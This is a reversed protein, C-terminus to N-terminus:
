SMVPKVARLRGRIAPWTAALVVLGITSVVAVGAVLPQSGAGPDVAFYFLNVGAHAVMCAGLGGTTRLYGMGLGFALPGLMHALSTYNAHALAFLIAQGVLAVWTARPGPWLDELAGQLLHRHYLEEAFAPTLSLLVVHGLTANAFLATEDATQLFSAPGQLAALALAEAGVVVPVAAWGISLEATWASWRRRFPDLFRWADERTGLVAAAALGLLPVLLNNEVINWPMRALQELTLARLTTPQGVLRAVHAFDVLAEAAPYLIAALAVLVPLSPKGWRARPLLAALLALAAAILTESM